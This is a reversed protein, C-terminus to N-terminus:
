AQVLRPPQYDVANISGHDKDYAEGLGLVSTFLGLTFKGHTVIAITEYGADAARGVVDNFAGRVRDIFSEYEEGGPACKTGKGPEFDLTAFIYDFLERARAKNHGSLVGYTNRERLDYIIDVPLDGLEHAIIAATESARALPSAYIAEINADKLKIATTKAQERGHDTLRFNAAGGYSDSLDDESEGHRVVYILM